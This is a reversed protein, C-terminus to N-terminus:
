VRSLRLPNWREANALCDECHDAQGLEWYCDWGDETEVIRWSCACNTRCRTQGDGPYAPLPPMGRGETKAREFAQKASDQYMQARVRAQAQTMKGEVIDQAFGNHYRYQNKLLGGLRGWDAQDMNERGGKAAIYQAIYQNKLGERFQEQWQQVTIRKDFLDDTLNQAWGKSQEQFTDRLGASVKVTAERKDGRFRHYVQKAADFLWTLPSAM